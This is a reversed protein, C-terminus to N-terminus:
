YILYRATHTLTIHCPGISLIFSLYSLISQVTQDEPAQLNSSFNRHIAYSTRSSIKLNSEKSDKKKRNTKKKKIYFKIFCLIKHIKMKKHM